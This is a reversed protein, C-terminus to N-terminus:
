VKWAGPGPYRRRTLTAVDFGVPGDARGGDEVLKAVPGTLDVVAAVDDVIGEEIFRFEFKCVDHASAPFHEEPRFLPALAPM